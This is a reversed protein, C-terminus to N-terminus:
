LPWIALLIGFLVSYVFNAFSGRFHTASAGSATVYSPTPSPQQTITSGSSAIEQPTGSGAPQQPVVSAAAQQPLVSGAPYQAPLVYTPVAQTAPSTGLALPSCTSCIQAVPPPLLLPPGATPSSRCLTQLCVDARSELPLLNIKSKYCHGRFKSM